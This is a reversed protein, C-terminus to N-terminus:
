PCKNNIQEQIEAKEGWWTKLNKMKSKCVDHKTHEWKIEKITGELKQKFSIYSFYVLELKLNRRSAIKKRIWIQSKMNMQMNERVRISLLPLIKISFSVEKKGWNSDRSRTEHRHCGAEQLKICQSPNRLHPLGYVSIGSRSCYHTRKRWLRKQSLRTGTCCAAAQGMQSVDYKSTTVATKTCFSQGKRQQM